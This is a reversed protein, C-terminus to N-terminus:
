SRLWNITAVIRLVCVVTLLAFAFVGFFYPIWLPIQVLISTEGSALKDFAAHNLRWTLLAAILGFIVDHIADLIRRKRLSLGSTFFEASINGGVSHTFPFFLFIGLACIIEVLEYDGPVPGMKSAFAFPLGAGYRGAVSVLTVGVAVLLCVGGFIALGKTLKELLAGGPALALPLKEDHHDAPAEHQHAASGEAVGGTGSHRDSM